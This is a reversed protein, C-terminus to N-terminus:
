PGVTAAALSSKTPGGQGTLACISHAIGFGTIFEGSQIARQCIPCQQGICGDGDEVMISVVKQGVRAYRAQRYTRRCGDCEGRVQGPQDARPRFEKINKEQKCLICVRTENPDGTPLNAPRGKKRGAPSRRNIMCAKTCFARERHGRTPKGDYTLTPDFRQECGQRACQVTVRAEALAALDARLREQPDMEPEPAPPEPEPEPRSPSGYGGMGQDYSDPRETPQVVFPSEPQVPTSGGGALEQDWARASLLDRRIARVEDVLGCLERRPTPSLQRCFIDLRDGLSGLRVAFTDIDM